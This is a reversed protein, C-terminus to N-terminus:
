WIATPKPEGISKCEFKAHMGVIVDQSSLKKSITPKFGM